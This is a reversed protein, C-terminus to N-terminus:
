TSSPTAIWADRRTLEIFGWREYLSRAPQNRCDVALALFAAGSDQATAVARRMLADSVGTGRATQTVGMYVVEISQSAPLAALLLIGLPVGDRCALYWNQPDFDGTAKHGALIDCSKRIGYLEPCDLSSEYSEELAKAFLSARDESFTIWDLDLDVRPKRSPLTTRRRLYILQTLRRFGAGNLREALEASSDPVLTQVLVNGRRLGEGAVAEVAAFAADPQTHPLQSWPALLLAAHGSSEVLLCAFEPGATGMSAGLVEIGLGRRAADTVFQSVLHGPRTEVADLALALARERLPDCPAVLRWRTHAQEISSM